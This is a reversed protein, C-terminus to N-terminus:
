IGSGYDRRHIRINRLSLRFELPPFENPHARLWSLFGRAELSIPGQNEEAELQAATENVWEAERAIADRRVRLLVIKAERLQEGVNTPHVLHVLDLGYALQEAYDIKDPFFRDFGQDRIDRIIEFVDLRQSEEALRGPFRNELSVELNKLYRHAKEAAEILDSASNFFDTSFPAQSSDSAAPFLTMLERIRGRQKELNKTLLLNLAHEFSSATKLEAFLESLSSTQDLKPFGLDIEIGLKKARDGKEYIQTRKLIIQESLRLSMDEICRRAELLWARRKDLDESESRRLLSPAEVRVGLEELQEFYCHTKEYERRVEAEEENLRETAADINEEILKLREALDDVHTLAELVNSYFQEVRSLELELRHLHGKHDENALSKLSQVKRQIQQLRDKLLRRHEHETSRISADVLRRVAEFEEKWSKYNKALLGISDEELQKLRIHTESSDGQDIHQVLQYVKQIWESRSREALSHVERRLESFAEGEPSKVDRRLEDFRRKLQEAGPPDISDDVIARIWRSLEDVEHSPTAKPQQAHIEDLIAKWKDPWMVLKVVIDSSEIDIETQSVSEVFDRAENDINAVQSPDSLQLEDRFVQITSFTQIISKLTKFKLQCHRLSSRANDVSLQNLVFKIVKGIDSKLHHIHPTLYVRLDTWRLSDCQVALHECSQLEAEVMIDLERITSLMRELDRVERAIARLKRSGPRRSIWSLAGLQSEVRRLEDCFLEAKSPVSDRLLALSERMGEIEPM